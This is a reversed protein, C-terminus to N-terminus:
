KDAKSKEVIQNIKNQVGSSMLLMNTTENVNDKPMKVGNRFSWMM